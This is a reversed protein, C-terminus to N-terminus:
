QSPSQRIRYFVRSEGPLADTYSNTWGYSRIESPLMTKITQWPGAVNTSKLLTYTDASGSKWNLTIVKQNQDLALSEITVVAPPFDPISGTTLMRIEEASLARKWVAVDDLLYNCAVSFRLASLTGAAAPLVVRAGFRTFDLKWAGAPKTPLAASDEVGDIYYWRRGDAEQVLVLHHWALRPTEFSWQFIPLETARAEVNEHPAQRFRFGITLRSEGLAPSIGFLTEPEQTSGEEFFYPWDCNGNSPVFQAWLSITFAPHRNIPLDDEPGKSLYIPPEAPPYIPIHLGGGNRASSLPGSWKLDHQGVRDPLAGDVVEDLPWYAVLDRRLEPAEVSPLRKPDPRELEVRVPASTVQGLADAAVVV